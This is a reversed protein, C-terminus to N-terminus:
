QDAPAIYSGLLPDYCLAKKYCEEAEERYGMNQLTVGKSFWAYGYGPHLKLSRNYSELAKEYQGFANNYYNGRICWATANLSDDKVLDDYYSQSARIENIFQSQIKEVIVPSM